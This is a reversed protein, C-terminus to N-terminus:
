QYKEVEPEVVEDAPEVAPTEAEATSATGKASISM